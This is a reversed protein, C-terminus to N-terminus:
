QLNLYIPYREQHLRRIVSLSPKLWKRLLYDELTDDRKLSALDIWIPVGDVKAGIEQLLTTKGAGPEGVVAIRKGKSKPSQGKLTLGFFDQHSVPKIKEEQEQVSWNEPEFDQKVRPKSQREVLGL